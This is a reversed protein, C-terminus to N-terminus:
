IGKPKYMLAETLEALFEVPEAFGNEIWTEIISILVAPIQAAIYKYARADITRNDLKTLIHDNTIYASISQHAFRILGRNYFLLLAERNEMVFRFAILLIQQVSMNKLDMKSEMEHFINNILYYVVDDKAHFHNYFTKRVVDARRCIDTVSIKEYAREQILSLFAEAIAKQTRIAVANAQAKHM